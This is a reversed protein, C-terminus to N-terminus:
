NWPNPDTGGDGLGGADVNGAQEENIKVCRVSCASSACLWGYMFLNGNAVTYAEGVSTDSGKSSIITTVGEVSTKAKPAVAWLIGRGTTYTSGNKYFGNQEMAGANGFGKGLRVGQKPIWILDGDELYDGEFRWGTTQYVGYTQIGKNVYDGVGVCGSTKADFMYAWYRGWNGNLGNFPRRYWAIEGDSPVKYGQPCPDRRAKTLGRGWSNSAADTYPHVDSAWSAGVEADTDSESNYNFAMPYWRFDDMRTTSASSALKRSVSFFGQSWKSFKYIEMQETLQNFANAEQNRTKGTNPPTMTNAGPFPTNNGYQYLLGGSLLAQEETMAEVEAVSKPTWRAGLNRDMFEPSDFWQQTGADTIWIHWNWYIGGSYASLLGIVVSGQKGHGPVTFKIRKNEWDMSLDTILGEETAWLPRVVAGPADKSEDNPNGYRCTGLADYPAFGYSKATNDPRVMFCNSYTKGASLDTYDTYVPKTVNMAAFPKVHNRQMDHAKGSQRLTAFKDTAVELYLDGDAYQAAPIVFYLSYPESSLTTLPKNNDRIEKSSSTYKTAFAAGRATGGSINPTVTFVPEDADVLVTGWGTLSASKSMLAVQSLSEEGTLDVKAISTANRFILEGDMERGIFISGSLAEGITEYVQLEPLYTYLSNGTLQVSNHEYYPYKAYILAEPSLEGEYTYTFTAYEDGPESVLTAPVNRIVGDTSFVSLRDGESWVFRGEENLDVKTSEVRVKLTATHTETKNGAAPDIEKRCALVATCALVALGFLKTMKKM